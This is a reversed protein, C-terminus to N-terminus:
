QTHWICLTTMKYQKPQKYSQSTLAAILQKNQSVNENEFNPKVPVLPITLLVSACSMKIFQVAM